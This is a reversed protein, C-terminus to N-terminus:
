PNCAAETDNPTLRVRLGDIVFEQAGRVHRKVEHETGRPSRRLHQAVWHLIAKRRSGAMPGDRLFFVDQYANLPIPFKIETADKVTALMSGSRHADEVLSAVIIAFEGEVSPTCIAHGQIKAPLPRGNKDLAVVRKMYDGMGSSLVTRGHMEYWHSPKGVYAVGRPAQRLRRFGYWKLAGGSLMMLEVENGIIDAPHAMLLEPTTAYIREDDTMDFTYASNPLMEDFRLLTGQDRLELVDGNGNRVPFQKTAASKHNADLALLILTELQDTVEM